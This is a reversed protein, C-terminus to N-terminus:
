FFRCIVAEMNHVWLASGLFKAFFNFGISGQLRSCKEFIESAVSKSTLNNLTLTVNMTLTQPQSRLITLSATEATIVPNSPQSPHFGAISVGSLNFDYFNNSKVNLDMNFTISAQFPFRQLAFSTNLPNLKIFTITPYRPYLFFIGGSVLFIFISFFILSIQLSKCLCHASKYHANKTNKNLPGLGGLANNINNNNYQQHENHDLNQVPQSRLPISKNNQNNNLPVTGLSVVRDHFNSISSRSICPPSFDHRSNSLTDSNAMFPVHHLVDSKNPIYSRQSSALSVDKSHLRPHLIVSHHSSSYLSAKSNSDSFNNLILISKRPDYYSQPRNPQDYVLTEGSEIESM